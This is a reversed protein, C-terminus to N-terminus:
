EFNEKPIQQKKKSNFYSFLIPDLFIEDDDFKIKEILNLNEKYLLVKVTNILCTKSTNIENLSM